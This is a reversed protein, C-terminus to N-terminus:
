DDTNILGDANVLRKEFAEKSIVDVTEESESYIIVAAGSKIKVLLSEAKQEFSLESEGYDTGERLVISAVLNQLAEPSLDKYNILM